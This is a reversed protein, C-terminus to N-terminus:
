KFLKIVGELDKFSGLNTPKTDRKGTKPNKIFIESFDLGKGIEIYKGRGPLIYENNPTFGKAPDYCKWEGDIFVDAFVHGYIKGDKSKSLNKIWPEYWVM